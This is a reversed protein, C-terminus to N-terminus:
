YFTEFLGVNKELRLLYEKDKEFYRAKEFDNGAFNIVSEKNMWESITFFHCIDGEVKRLIKDSVNGITSICATHGTHIIYNLYADAQDAKTQGHWIRTIM